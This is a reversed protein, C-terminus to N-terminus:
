PPPVIAAMRQNFASFGHSAFFRQATDNFSWVELEVRKIGRTTAEAFLASLLATGIGRRRFQRAVVIHELSFYHLPPRIISGERHVEQAVLNGAIQGEMEAISVYANSDAFVRALWEAETANGDPMNFRDPLHTAHLEQVECFLELVAQADEGTGIRIM